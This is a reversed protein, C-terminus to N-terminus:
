LIQKGEPERECGMPQEVEYVVFYNDVINTNYM